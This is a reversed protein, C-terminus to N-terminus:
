KVFRQELWRDAFAFCNGATDGYKEEEGREPFFNHGAGEIFAVTKDRSKVAREYIHEAAIYEYSGTMGMLLLPCSIHSANGVGNCYASDWDVGYLTTEDYGYKDPDVRIASSELFTKVSTVQAGIKYHSALDRGDRKARLCHVIEHTISGDRHILDYAKKTHSFYKTVQPFLKNVPLYQTGGAIIMPEDDVFDGEGSEIKELRDNAEEILRLMRRAQASLFRHIFEESFHCNDPDYGNAPNYLNLSEDRKTGCRDSLLSPDLSLLCMPGNGFNADMFIVADAPILETGPSLHMPRVMNGTQFVEQGFEAAAQYASMLTAGGSHGLLIVHEVGPYQSVYSVVNALEEIKRSLPESPDEFAAAFVRYGMEPLYQTPVYGIYNGDSHMLIIACKAKDGPKEPEYLMCPIHMNIKFYNQKVNFTDM